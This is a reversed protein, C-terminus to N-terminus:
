DYRYREAGDGSVESPTRGWQECRSDFSARQAEDYLETVGVPLHGVDSGYLVGAIELGPCDEFLNPQLVCSLSLGTRRPALRTLGYTGRTQGCSRAATVAPTPTHAGRDLRSSGFAWRRVDLPAASELLEAIVQQPVLVTGYLRQLVDISGLLTLYNLPSSDAVVVTM